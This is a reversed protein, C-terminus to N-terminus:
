GNEKKRFLFENNAFGRIPKENQLTLKLEGTCFKIVEDPSAFEYPYGGLWDRIDTLLSMGRKQYYSSSYTIPNKLRLLLALWTAVLAGRILFERLLFPLRNYLRKELLWFKSTGFRGHSDVTFREVKNYLAIYFLGGPKLLGAANKIAQWM